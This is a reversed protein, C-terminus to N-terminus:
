AMFAASAWYRPPGSATTAWSGLPAKVVPLVWGQSCSWFTIPSVTAPPLPSVQRYMSTSAVMGAMASPKPMRKMGSDARQYAEWSRTGCAIPESLRTRSSCVSSMAESISSIISTCRASACWSLHFSERIQAVAQVRRSRSM